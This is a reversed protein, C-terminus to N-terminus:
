SLHHSHSCMFTKYLKTVWVALLLKGGKPTDKTICTFSDVTCLVMERLQLCILYQMYIHYISYFPYMRLVTFPTAGKEKIYVLWM